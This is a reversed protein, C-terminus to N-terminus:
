PPWRWQQWPASTQRKAADHDPHWPNWNGLPADDAPVRWRRVQAYVILAIHQYGDRLKGAQDWWPDIWGVSLQAVQAGSQVVVGRVLRGTDMVLEIRRGQQFPAPAVGALARRIEEFTLDRSM